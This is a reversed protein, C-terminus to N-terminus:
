DYGVRMRRELFAGYRSLSFVFVFYILAVFIYVEVYANAWDATGYAANASALIEFLGIIIVISTEKFTIVFQNITPPLSNRFAQPLLILWVQKWYGIGLAKAAEFQGAPISQLGGRIIEAQYCAFFFAFAGIVRYLKDGQAWSPLVFPVILAATFLITLLPMSRTFDIALSALIRIVPLESRRALALLIALPMGIISVSAFIFVTLSFGGWEETTVSSLGFIGGRMLIYFAGFGILWTGAIHRPTWFVPMCSLITVVVIISVAAGSRWLEEYPFLGFLTLRFRAHIVAWCAGSEGTCLEKNEKSWIADFVAWETVSPLFYMLMGLGAFTIISDMWGGLLKTRIWDAPGLREIPPPLIPTTTTM